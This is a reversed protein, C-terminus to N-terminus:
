YLSVSVPYLIVLTCLFLFWSLPSFLISILFGVFVKFCGLSAPKIQKFEMFARLQKGLLLVVMYGSCIQQRWRGKPSALESFIANPNENSDDSLDLDSGLSLNKYHRAMDNDGLSVDEFDSEKPWQENARIQFGQKLTFNYSLLFM